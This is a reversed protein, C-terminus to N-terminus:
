GAAPLVCECCSLVVFSGALRSRTFFRFVHNCGWQSANIVDNGANVPESLRTIVVRPM